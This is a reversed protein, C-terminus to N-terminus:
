FVHTRIVKNPPAHQYPLVFYQFNFKFKRVFQIFRIRNWSLWQAGYSFYKSAGIILSRMKELNIFFIICFICQKVHSSLRIGSRSSYSLHGSKRHHSQLPWPVFVGFKARLLLNNTWKTVAMPKWLNDWWSIM